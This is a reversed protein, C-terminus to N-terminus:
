RGAAEREAVCASLVDDTSAAPWSGMPCFSVRPSPAPPFGSMPCTGAGSPARPERLAAAARLSSCSAIPVADAPHVPPLAGSGKGM